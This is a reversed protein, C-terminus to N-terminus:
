GCVVVLHFGSSYSDYGLIADYEIVFVANSGSDSPSAGITIADDAPLATAEGGAGVYTCQSVNRNFAVVYQGDVGLSTSSVAGVGRALTGDTNVVASLVTTRAPAASFSPAAVAMTLVVLAVIGLVRSLLRM